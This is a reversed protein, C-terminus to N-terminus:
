DTPFSDPGFLAGGWNDPEAPKTQRKVRAPKKAGVEKHSEFVMGTMEKTLMELSFGPISWDAAPKVVKPALRKRFNTFANAILCWREHESMKSRHNTDRLIRERVIHAPDGEYAPMGTAFVNLFEAGTTKENLYDTAIVYIAGLWQRRFQSPIKRVLLSAEALTVSHSRAFELSQHPTPSVGKAVSAICLVGRIIAATVIPDPIGHLELNDGPTRGKGMDIFEKTDPPWGISVQASFGIKTRVCATLRHQGNILEDNTDFAIPEPVHPFGGGRFQRMLRQVHRQDLRRNNRNKLLYVEAMEPTVFEHRTEITAASNDM